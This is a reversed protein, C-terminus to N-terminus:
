TTSLKPKVRKANSPVDKVIQATPPENTKNMRNILMQQAFSV